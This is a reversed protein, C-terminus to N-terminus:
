KFHNSKEQIYFGLKYFDFLYLNAKGKLFHNKVSKGFLKFLILPVFALNFRKLKDYIQILKISERFEKSNDINAQIFLLSKIAIETKELFKQNSDLGIHFVSNNSHYIQLNKKRLELGFLTDEHGYNAIKENFKIKEFLSKKIIFNNNMFSQFPNLKRIEPTQQQRNLGYKWNLLFKQDVLKSEYISGGFIVNLNENQLLSIYNELYNASVIKADCDLFLLNEFQVYKLFLNRIKSRGINKELEIYKAKTCSIKNIKKFSEQSCDDILILEFPVNLRNGQCLIEEVLSGVDFNYIPICISIM